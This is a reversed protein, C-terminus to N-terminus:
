LLTACLARCNQNRQTMVSLDVSSDVEAAKEVVVQLQNCKIQIFPRQVGCTNTVYVIVCEFMKHCFAGAPAASTSSFSPCGKQKKAGHREHSLDVAFVRLDRVTLALLIVADEIKKIDPQLNITKSGVDAVVVKISIQLKLVESM